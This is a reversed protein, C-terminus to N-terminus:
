KYLTNNYYFSHNVIPIIQSYFQHTEHDYEAVAFGQTWDPHSVYVPNPTLNCLCGTEIWFKTNGSQTRTVHALRHSHGTFGSTGFKDINAHASFGSKVRVTQGHFFSVGHRQVVKHSPIWKIGQKKLDLIHPVSILYEDGSTLGALQQANRGLYKQLRAEHNGEYLSIEVDKNAKRGAKVIDELTYKTAWIEDSLTNEYYPDQDFKSIKTFNVLDGLIDIFQPQYSEIFKLILKVTKIDQDPIHLDSIILYKERKTPKM